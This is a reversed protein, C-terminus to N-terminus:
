KNKLRQLRKRLADYTLSQKNKYTDIWILEEEDSIEEFVENKNCDIQEKLNRWVEDTSPKRDLNNKLKKYTKVIEPAARDIRRREAEKKEADALWKQLDKYHVMISVRQFQPTGRLSEIDGAEKWSEALIEELEGEGVPPNNRWIRYCTRIEGNSFADYLAPEIEDNSQMPTTRSIYSIAKPWCDIWTPIPASM